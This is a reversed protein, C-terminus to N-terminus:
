CWCRTSRPRRARGRHRHGAPRGGDAAARRGGPAGDRRAAAAAAQGGGGARRRQVRRLMDCWSATAPRRGRVADPHTLDTNSAVWPLGDRIRVAARMVDRWLSTRATAPSWPRPTTTAVGSRCWGRRVCRRARPGDAGLCSWGRRRRRAARGAGARGGPGLHRRGRSPAQGRARAPARGGDGPPRSANNTIFALHVGASARGRSTSPPAPCRTRRRRLRGRRPRADGPRLRRM